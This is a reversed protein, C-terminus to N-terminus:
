TENMEHCFFKGCWENMINYGVEETGLIILTYNFCIGFQLKKLLFAIEKM